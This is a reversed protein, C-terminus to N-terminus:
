SPPQKQSESSAPTLDGRTTPEATDITPASTIPWAATCAPMTEGAITMITAMVAIALKAVGANAMAM